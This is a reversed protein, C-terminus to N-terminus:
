NKLYFRTFPENSLKQRMSNNVEMLFGLGTKGSGKPKEKLLQTIDRGKSSIKTLTQISSLVLALFRPVPDLPRPFTGVAPMKLLLSSFRLQDFVYPWWSGVNVGALNQEDQQLKQVVRLFELEAKHLLISKEDKLNCAKNHIDLWTQLTAIDEELVAENTFGQGETGLPLASWYPQWQAKLWGNWTRSERQLTGTWHREKLEDFVLNGLKLWESYLTQKATQMAAKVEGKPLIAVIVNPFGATLLARDRPKEIWPQFDSWKQLLWHDILPQQYLSPYILSDPGYKLALQWCIKASLYHLLWSGAWFDRMKRSAKILEQVPTFSFITLYPHSNPQGSALQEQNSTQEYGTLAGAMAATLSSHSWVSADPLSTAAPLLLLSENQQCVAQPLCRWLWWFLQQSDIQKPTAPDAEQTQSQTQNNPQRVLSRYTDLNLLQLLKEGSLLHVIELEQTDLQAANLVARDSADTILNALYSLNPTSRSSPDSPQPLREICADLFPQAEPGTQAKLASFNFTYLLGRIKAQWFAESM